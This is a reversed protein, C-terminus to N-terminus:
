SRGSRPRLIPVFSLRLSTLSYSARSKTPNSAPSSGHSRAALSHAVPRLPGARQGGEAARRSRSGVEPVPRNPRRTAVREGLPEGKELRQILARLGRSPHGRQPLKERGRLWDVILKDDDMPKNL